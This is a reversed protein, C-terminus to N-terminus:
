LGLVVKGGVAGSVAEIILSTIDMPQRPFTTKWDNKLSIVTWNNKKAM